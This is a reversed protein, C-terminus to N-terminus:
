QEKSEVPTVQGVTDLWRILLSPSVRFWNEKLDQASPPAVRCWAGDSDRIISVGDIIMRVGRDASVSPRREM